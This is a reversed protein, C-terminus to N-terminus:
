RGLPSDPDIMGIILKGQPKLVRKAEKLARFPDKLFCLVTVM